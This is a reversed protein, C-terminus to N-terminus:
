GTFVTLLLFSLMVVNNTTSYTHYKQRLDSDGIRCYHPLLNLQSCAASMLQNFHNDVAHITHGADSKVFNFCIWYVIIDKGVEM